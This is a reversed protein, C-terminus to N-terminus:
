VKLLAKRDVERSTKARTSRIFIALKLTIVIVLFMASCFILSKEICNLGEAGVGAGPFKYLGIDVILQEKLECDCNCMRHRRGWAMTDGAEGVDTENMMVKLSIALDAGLLVLILNVRSAM